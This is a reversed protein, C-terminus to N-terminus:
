PDLTRTLRTRLRERLDRDCAVDSIGLGFGLGIVFWTAAGSWRWRRDALRVTHIRRTEMDVLLVEEAGAAYAYELLQRRTEPHEPDPAREGTKIEAVRIGRRRRHRLIRDVRLAAQYTKGDIFYQANLPAQKAVVTYGAAALVADAQEEGRRARKVRRRQARHRRSKRFAHAMFVALVALGFGLMVGLASAEM